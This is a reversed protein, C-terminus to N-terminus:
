ASRSLPLWDLVRQIEADWLGWEHEGPVFSTSLPIGRRGAAAAFAENDAVLADETGCGLYLPPLASRDVTELLDFLDAEAPIGASGFAREFMRPDEPRERGSRLGTLHVAGSLCAAAGFREPYTLAWRFAGYGGMSLGAVFTDAPETSVRFFDGVLAPLEETLFTWYAGGYAQDAYFSRHVQPMVVALGLPAVYREISTRRLWTTDDDSLGHLLYLVPPPGDTSAGSMGIQQRTAQPLIVTMSTSLGLADAFFDCRLHAM